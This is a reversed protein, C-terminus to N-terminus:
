PGIALGQPGTCNAVPVTMTRVVARTTPNLVAVGGAVSNDGPGNIEPVTVYINGDRHNWQCQEIGNTANPRGGVGDFKVTGLVTYTTTSIFTLFPPDDANNAAALIHDVPDYCMEDARKSGGTNITHTLVGTNVDLVKVTSD